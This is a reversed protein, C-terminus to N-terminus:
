SAQPVWTRPPSLGARNIGDGTVPFLMPLLFSLRCPKGQQKDKNKLRM